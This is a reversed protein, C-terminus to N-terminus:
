DVAESLAGLAAGASRYKGGAAGAASGRVHVDIRSGSDLIYIAGKILPLGNRDLARSTVSVARVFGRKAKVLRQRPARFRDDGAIGAAVSAAVAKRRDAKARKKAM